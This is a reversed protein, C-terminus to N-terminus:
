LWEWEYNPDKIISGPEHDFTWSEDLDDYWEWFWEWFDMDEEAWIIWSYDVAVDHRKENREFIDDWITHGDDDLSINHGGPLTLRQAALDSSAPILGLFM